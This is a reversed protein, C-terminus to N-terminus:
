NSSIKFCHSKLFLDEHQRIEELIHEPFLFNEQSKILLKRTVSNKLIASVFVNTDIIIDM